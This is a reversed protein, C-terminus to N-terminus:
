TDAAPQACNDAVQSSLAARALPYHPATFGSGVPHRLYSRVRSASSAKRVGRHGIWPAGRVSRGAIVIVGLLRWAWRAAARSMAVGEWKGTQEILSMLVWSIVLDDNRPSSARGIHELTVAETAALPLGHAAYTRSLDFDEYYLFLREDFGGVQLFETRSVIFAAGVIWINSRRRPRPRLLLLNLQRPVLYWAVLTWCLERRWGWRVQVVRRDHGAERLQCGLLGLPSRAALASLASDDASTPFADPNIVLLLTGVAADAGRNVGTGFGLNSHGAILRAEPCDAVLDCTADTSGNDVVIIEAYPLNARVASL